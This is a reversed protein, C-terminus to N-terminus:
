ITSYCGSVLIYKGSLNANTQAADGVYVHMYTAGTNVQVAVGNTLGAVRGTLYSYNSSGKAAFPLGAINNTHSGSNTPYSIYFNVFVLDGVKVYSASGLTLTLGDASGDTPTWTGREYDSFLESDGSGSTASFDIGKGSIVKLNGTPLSVDGTNLCQLNYRTNVRDYIGYADDKGYVNWKEVEAVSFTIVGGNTGSIELGQYSSSSGRPNDTGIGVAGDSTIRITETGNVEFKTIGGSAAMFSLNASDARVHVSDNTGATGSSGLTLRVDAASTAQLQGSSTIRLKEILSCSADASGSVATYFIHNGDNQFYASAEGNAIYKGADSSNYYFNQYIGLFNDSRGIISYGGNGQIVGKNNSHWSKPTVGLGLRGGSDIRLRGTGGTQLELDNATANIRSIGTGTPTLNIRPGMNTGVATIRAIDDYGSQGTIQLQYGTSPAAGIGTNGTTVINQSGFDPAVKTGAIAADSKIDANVISDDKVGGSNITTLAM